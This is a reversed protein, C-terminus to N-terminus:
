RKIFNQYDIFQSITIATIDINSDYKTDNLIYQKKLKNKPIQESIFNLSDKYEAFEPLTMGEFDIEPYVIGLINLMAFEDNIELIEQIENFQRLSIDNWNKKTKNKM